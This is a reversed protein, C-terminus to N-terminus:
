SAIRRLSTFSCPNKHCRAALVSANQLAEKLTELASQAEATWEFSDSKKLLRYLPLAKDGLQPIFRSLV